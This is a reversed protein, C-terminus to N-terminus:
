CEPSQIWRDRNLDARSRMGGETMEQMKRRRVRSKCDQLRAALVENGAEAQRGGTLKWRADKGAEKGQKRRRAEESSSSLDSGDPLGLDPLPGRAELGVSHSKAPVAAM